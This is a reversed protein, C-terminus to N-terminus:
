LEDYMRKEAELEEKGHQKMRHEETIFGSIKQYGKIAVVFQSFGKSEAIDEPTRDMEDFSELTAGRAMLVDLVDVYGRVAAFHLATMGYREKSDASEACEDLVWAVGRAFGVSAFHHLTPTGLKNEGLFCRGYNAKINGLAAIAGVQAPGSWALQLEKNNVELSDAAKTPKTQPCLFCSRKCSEGMFKENKYCEGNDAWNACDDKEDDCPAGRAGNALLVLLILHRVAM